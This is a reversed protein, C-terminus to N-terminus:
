PQKKFRRSALGLVGFAFIALTSPEPVSVSCVQGVDDNCRGATSFDGSAHLLNSTAWSSGLNNDLSISTLAMSAGTPDPFVPGGDWEVRDIENLFDDFLALEDASNALILGSYQYDVSIGGNTSTNSNRGLVLFGGSSIVLSGSNNIVHSDIDNDNLTWGNIDIDTLGSNFLEFWEGNSDTVASPNQFIENIIIGANASISLKLCIIATLAMQTIIKLM